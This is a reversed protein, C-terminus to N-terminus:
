IEVERDDVLRGIKETEKQATAIAIQVKHKNKIMQIAKFKSEAHKEMFTEVEEDKQQQLLELKKKQAEVIGKVLPNISISKIELRLKSQFSLQEFKARRVEKTYDKVNSANAQKGDNADNLFSLIKSQSKLKITLDTLANLENIM